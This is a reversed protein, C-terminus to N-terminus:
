NTFQLAVYSSFRNTQQRNRLGEGASLLLHRHEDFDFTAGVNFGTTPPVDIATRSRNFVEAGLVWRDDIRRQVLAGAFWNNRSGAAHNIWYGAGGDVIWPGSSKQAWLPLLLQARGNGLGRGAAGTPMVFTPYIALMPTADTEQHWRYKVGAEVDGLGVQRQGSAPWAFAVPIGLHLQMEPAGGYNVEVGPSTGSRGTATLTQQTAVNIEYKHLAVPEPDDTAYPPGARVSAALCSSLVLLASRAVRPLSARRCDHPAVARIVEYRRASAHVHGEADAAAAPTARCHGFTGARVLGHGSLAQASSPDLAMTRARAQTAVTAVVEFHQADAEHIVTLSGDGNSSFALGSAPDFEAGDPEAGIPLEALLRGSSADVVVMKRNACVAFLRQRAVDIALGTPEECPKLPWRAQVRNSALDLVVIEGTDEINVFVHGAGDAVAVEPKGGLAVTTVVSLKVADIITVNNSKGNFAYVRKVSPM